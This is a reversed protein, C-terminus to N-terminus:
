SEFTRALFNRTRAEDNRGLFYRLFVFFVFIAAPCLLINFLGYSLAQSSSGYSDYFLGNIAGLLISIGAVLIFLGNLIRAGPSIRFGGFLRSGNQDKEINGYFIPSYTNRYSTIWIQFACSQTQDDYLSVRYGLRAKEQRLAALLLEYCQKPAIDLSYALTASISVYYM